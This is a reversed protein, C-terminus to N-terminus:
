AGYVRERCRLDNHRFAQVAVPLSKPENYITDFDKTLKQFEFAIPLGPVVSGLGTNITNELWALNLREDPGGRERYTYFGEPALVVLRIMTAQLLPKGHTVPLHLRAYAYLLGYLVVEWAAYLPNNSGFGQEATGYKLEIFEFEKNGCDHVLDINRLQDAQPVLGSATVVQNSWAEDLLMAIVKELIKEPSQNGPNLRTEKRLEWTPESPVKRGAETHNKAIRELIQNLLNTTDVSTGSSGLPGGNKSLDIAAQKSFYGAKDSTGYQPLGSLGCWSDILTDVGALISM